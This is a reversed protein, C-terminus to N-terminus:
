VGKSIIDKIGKLEESIKEQEKMISELKENLLIEKGDSVFYQIPKDLIESIKQLLELNPYSRSSEYSSITKDSLGLALGLGRQSINKELRAIKLKEGFSKISM